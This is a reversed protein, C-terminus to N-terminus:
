PDRTYARNYLFAFPARDRDLLRQYERNMDSKSRFTGLGTYNDVHPLTRKITRHLQIPFWITLQGRLSGKSVWHTPTYSRVSVFALAAVIVLLPAWNIENKKMTTTYCFDLPDRYEDEPGLPNVPPPFITANKYPNDIVWLDDSFVLVHVSMTSIPLYVIILLFTVPVIFRGYARADPVQLGELYKLGATQITCRRFYWLLLATIAM